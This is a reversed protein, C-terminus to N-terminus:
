CGDKAFPSIAVKTEESLQVMKVTNRDNIKRQEFIRLLNRFTIFRPVVEGAKPAPFEPGSIHACILMPVFPQRSGIRLASSKGSLPSIHRRCFSTHAGTRSILVFPSRKLLQEGSDRGTNSGGDTSMGEVQDFGTHLTRGGLIFNSLQLQGLHSQWLPHSLEFLSVLKNSPGSYLTTKDLITM